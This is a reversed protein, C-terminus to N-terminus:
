KIIKNTDDVPEYVIDLPMFYKRISDKQEIKAVEYGDYHEIVCSSLNHMATNKGTPPKRILYRFEKQKEYQHLFYIKM